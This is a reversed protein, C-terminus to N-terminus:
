KIGTIKYRSWYFMVIALHIGLLSLLGYKLFKFINKYIFKIGALNFCVLLVLVVSILISVNDKTYLYQCLLGLFFQYFTKPDTGTKMIYRTITDYTIFYLKLFQIYDASAGNKCVIFHLKLLIRPTEIDQNEKIVQHTTRSFDFIVYDNKNMKKEVDLKTFKTIVNDNGETLGILVRYLSVDNFSCVEHCDKHIVINGSAGYLNKSSTHDATKKFNSYYLENMETVPMKVCKGECLNDWFPNQQIKDVKSKISPDMESYWTHFTSLNKDPILKYYENSIDELISELEAPVKGIGINGEVEDKHTFISM